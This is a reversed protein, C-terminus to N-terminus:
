VKWGPNRAAAVRLTDQLWGDLGPELYFVPELLTADPAILGKHRATEALPTSPYIRIGATLKVTELELSEAFEISQRVSQRTEGPGGFMLFGMRSIGHRCLLESLRRIEKRGYKKNMASLVQDDASEFGISASSCGALAMNEILKEGTSVPYIIAQWSIKLGAKAIRECLDQAYSGPLNFTNDVFFFNKFGSQAFPQLNEVAKEPLRCRLHRGEIAPTSCYSCNMACGRRTQFPVMIKRSNGVPPVSLHVGPKPMPYDDLNQDHLVPAMLGKDPTWLGNLCDLPTNNEIRELFDIMAREGEGQIGFDAGLYKLASGPFISYGPGGVVIPAKCRSRCEDIVSKVRPLLFIPAGMNQDDINRVSVGIVEPAFEDIAPALLRSVHQKEMLNVVRIDHGASEVAASVCAMGLPLVPMNIQETNASVMLVRM